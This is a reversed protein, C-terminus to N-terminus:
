RIVESLFAWRIDRPTVWYIRASAEEYTLDLVPSHLDGRRIVVNRQPDIVILRGTPLVAGYLRNNLRDVALSAVGFPAPVHDVIRLTTADLVTLRGHFPVAVFLRRGDPSIAVDAVGFGVHVKRLQDGTELDFEVLNGFAPEVVFLRDNEQHIAMHYPLPGIRGFSGNSLGNAGSIIELREVGACVFYWQRNNRYFGVDLLPACSPIRVNAPILEVGNSDVFPRVSYVEGPNQLVGFAVSAPPDGVVIPDPLTPMKYRPPFTTVLRTEQANTWGADNVKIPEGRWGSTDANRTPRYADIVSFSGAISFMWLAAVFPLFKSQRARYVVFAAVAGGILGVFTWFPMAMIFLLGPPLLFLAFYTLFVDVFDIWSHRRSRLYFALVVVPIAVIYFGAYMTARLLHLQFLLIAAAFLRPAFSVMARMPRNM